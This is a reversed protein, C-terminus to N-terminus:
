PAPGLLSALAAFDAATIAHDLTLDFIRCDHRTGDTPCADLASACGFCNQFGAFDLLDRDGDADADGDVMTFEVTNVAAGDNFTCTTRAYPPPPRDLVIEVVEPPGNDLRRTAVVRPASMGEGDPPPTLSEVIEVASEEV